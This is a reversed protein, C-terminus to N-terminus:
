EKQLLDGFAKLQQFTKKLTITLQYKEVKKELDMAHNTLKWLIQHISPLEMVYFLILCNM